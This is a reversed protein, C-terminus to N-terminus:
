SVIVVQVSSDITKIISRMMSVYEKDLETYRLLDDYLMKKLEIDNTTEYAVDRLIGPGVIDLNSNNLDFLQLRDIHRHVPMTM